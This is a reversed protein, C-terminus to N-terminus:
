IEDTVDMLQEEQWTTAHKGEYLPHWSFHHVYKYPSKINGTFTSMQQTQGERSSIMAKMGNSFPGNM